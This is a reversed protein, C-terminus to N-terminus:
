LLTSERGEALWAVCSADKQRRHRRTRVRDVLGRRSFVNRWPKTAELVLRSTCLPSAAAISESLWSLMKFIRLALWRTQLARSQFCYVSARTTWFPRRERLQGIGIVNPNVSLLVFISPRQDHREHRDCATVITWVLWTPPPWFERCLSDIIEHSGRALCLRVLLRMESYTSSAGRDVGTACVARNRSPTLRFPHPPSLQVDAAGNTQRPVIGALISHRPRM